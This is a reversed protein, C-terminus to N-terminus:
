FTDKFYNSNSNSPKDYIINKLCNEYPSLKSKQSPYCCLPRTPTASPLSPFTHEWKKPLSHTAKWRQQTEEMGKFGTFKSCTWRHKSQQGLFVLARYASAFPLDCLKYKKLGVLGRANSIQNQDKLLKMKFDAKFSWNITFNDM